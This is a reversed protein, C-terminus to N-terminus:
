NQSVDDIADLGEAIADFCTQCVTVEQNNLTATLQVGDQEKKCLDCTFTGCATLTMVMALVLALLVFFKKM